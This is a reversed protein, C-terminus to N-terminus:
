LAKNMDVALGAAKLERVLEIKWETSPGYQVYVVAEFDSPKEIDGSVLACVNRPGLQGIFFGLEFIVNQRARPKPDSGVLGGVDDPTMLVLAFTIDASEERFKSILTRGSNPREHLIVPELGLRELFRAVEHKAGNDRGHVIFVKVPQQITMTLSGSTNNSEPSSSSTSPKGAVTARLSAYPPHESVADETLAVIEGDAFVYGDKKLCTCFDTQEKEPVVNTQAARRVVAVGLSDGEATLEEDHEIVFAGLANARALLSGRDRGARLGDVGLELVFHDFSTHGLARLITCAKLLTQRTFKYERKVTASSSVLGNSRLVELLQRDKVAWHTRDMEGDIDLDWSMADLRSAAIPAITTDFAFTVRIRSGKTQITKLWGVRAPADLGSEYAFVTPLQLLEAIVEETLPKLRAKLNDATYELYRTIDYIYDTGDWAGESATVLLNYMAPTGM